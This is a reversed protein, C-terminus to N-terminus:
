KPFTTHIIHECNITDIMTSYRTFWLVSILEPIM